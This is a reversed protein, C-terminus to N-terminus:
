ALDGHRLGYLGGVGGDNQGESQGLRKGVLHRSFQAFAYLEAHPYLHLEPASRSGPLASFEVRCEM